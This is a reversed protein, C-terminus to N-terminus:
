WLHRAGRDVVSDRQIQWVTANRADRQPASSQQGIRLFFEPFSAALARRQGDSGQDDHCETKPHPAQVEPRWRNL